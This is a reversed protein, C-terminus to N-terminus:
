SYEFYVREGNEDKHWSKEPNEKFHELIDDMSPDNYFSQTRRWETYDKVLLEKSIDSVEYYNFLALFMSTKNEGLAQKLANVGSDRLHLADKYDLNLQM